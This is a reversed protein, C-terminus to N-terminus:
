RTDLSITSLQCFLKVSSDIAMLIMRGRQPNGHCSGITLVDSVKEEVFVRDIVHIKSM